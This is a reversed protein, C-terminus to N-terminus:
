LAQRALAVLGVMVAYSYDVLYRLHLSLPPPFQDCGDSCYRLLLTHLVFCELDGLPSLIM